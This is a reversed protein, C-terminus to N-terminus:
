QILLSLLILSMRFQDRNDDYNIDPISQSLLLRIEGYLYRQLNQSKWEFKFFDRGKTRFSRNLKKLTKKM